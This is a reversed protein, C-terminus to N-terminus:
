VICKQTDNGMEASPADRGVWRDLFSRRRVVKLLISYSCVKQARAIKLILLQLGGEVKLLIVSVVGGVKM